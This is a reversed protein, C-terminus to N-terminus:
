DDEEAFIRETAAERGKGQRTASDDKEDGWALRRESVGEGWM